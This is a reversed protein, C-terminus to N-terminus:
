QSRGFEYHRSGLQVDIRDTAPRYRFTLQDLSEVLIDGSTRMDCEGLQHAEQSGGPNIRLDPLTAFGNSERRNCASAFVFRQPGFEIRTAGRDTVPRRDKLLRWIGYLREAPVNLDLSRLRVFRATAVPGIAVLGSGDRTLRLSAGDFPALEPSSRWPGCQDTAFGSRYPEIRFQGDGSPVLVGGITSCKRQVAFTMRGGNIDMISLTLRPDARSRWSEALTGRDDDNLGASAPLSGNTPQSRGAACGATLLLLVTIVASKRLRM